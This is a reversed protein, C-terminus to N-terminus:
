SSATGLLLLSWRHLACFCHALSSQLSPGDQVQYLLHMPSCLLLCLNAKSFHEQMLDSCQAHPSPLFWSSSSRADLTRTWLHQMKDTRYFLWGANKVALTAQYARAQSPRWRSPSKQGWPSGWLRSPWVRTEAAIESCRQFTVRRGMVTILVQSSGNTFVFPKNPSVTKSIATYGPKPGTNSLSYGSIFLFKFLPLPHDPSIDWCNLATVSRRSSGPKIRLVWM